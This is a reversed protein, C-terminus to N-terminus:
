VRAPNPKEPDIGYRKIAEGVSRRRGHGRRGPKSRRSRWGTAPRGRLLPAAQPSLRLPRFRRHGPRPLAAARLRPDPRRVCRMYDTAAVVPGERGRPVTRCPEEAADRGPHLLNWREVDCRRAACSPSAPSAGSTPPSASTARWCDAAAIVERLITGSGLLQVRPAQDHRRAKASCTCAKSSAKRAGRGAHGSARLEREDRHHLLLCGGARSVHPAHRGPHDGGARLRLDSRLLRLEPDDARILHSHGDEHQLGEGNLTTRGATGGLLFGRARMDGAAWALDGVRQFGFMSYFIYFPIMPVDNTSYVDGGRDLLVDRGARQHRGAPDPREQRGQLVDAPRRGAAPLAPRGPQYIGFQRFMGEMGFTRAEDPVIPVVHKGIKKDRLLTNLIRVFAMTTSIERGETGKLQAEFASSRRCRAAAGVKRRRAPLSGGLAQARQQLYQM